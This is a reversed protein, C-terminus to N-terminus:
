LETAIEYEDREEKTMYQMLSLGQNYSEHIFRQLALEEIEMARDEQESTM